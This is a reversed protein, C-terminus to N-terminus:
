EIEEEIVEEETAAEAEQNFAIAESTIAIELAAIESEVIRLESKANQLLEFAKRFGGAAMVDMADSVLPDIAVLGTRAADISAAFGDKTEFDYQALVGEVTALRSESYAVRTHIEALDNQFSNELDAATAEEPATEHSEVLVEVAKNNASDVAEKAEDVNALNEGTALETESTKIAAEYEDVKRDMMKALEAATGLDDAKIEDIKQNAAEIEKAFGEIATKVQEDREGDDLTGSLTVVEDLRNSAFSVHLKAKKEGSLTMALQARENAIKVPYLADGPVTDFSASVMGTWGGIMLVFASVGVALPRVVSSRFLHSYYSAFDRWSYKHPKLEPDAGIMFAVKRWGDKIVEEDTAGFYDHDGFSELKKILDKETM